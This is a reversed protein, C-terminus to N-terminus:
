LEVVQRSIKNFERVQQTPKTITLLKRLRRESFYRIAKQDDMNLLVNQIKPALSLLKMVQSVRARTIGLERAIDAQTKMYPDRDLLRQYRMAEILPSVYIRTPKEPPTGIRFIRKKNM